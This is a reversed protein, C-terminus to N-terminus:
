RSTTRQRLRRRPSFPPTFPFPFASHFFYLIKRDERHGAGRYPCAGRHATTHISPQVGYTCAGRHATTHVRYQVGVSVHGGQPMPIYETSYGSLCMGGQPCQCTNQVTSEITCARRHTTTYIIVRSHLKLLKGRAEIDHCHSQAPGASLHLTVVQGQQTNLLSCLHASPFFHQSCKNVSIHILPEPKNVSIHIHPKPKNVSTLTCPEPKDVSTHM